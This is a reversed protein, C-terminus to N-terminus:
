SAPNLAVTVFTITAERVPIPAAVSSTAGDLIQLATPGEVIGAAIALGFEGTDTFSWAIATAGDYIPASAPDPETEVVAMEVPEGDRQIRAALTGRGDPIFLGGAAQVDDWHAETPAPLRAFRMPDYPMASRAIGAGSVDLVLGTGTPATAFTFRGLSDT